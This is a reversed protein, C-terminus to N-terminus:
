AMWLYDDEEAMAQAELEAYHTGEIDLRDTNSAQVGPSENILAEREALSFETASAATKQLYAEAAGAIDSTATDGPKGGEMLHKAGASRQFAAVIEHAGMAQMSPNEPSLADDGMERLGEGDVLDVDGLSATHDEGDTSPLAPEPEEHFMAEAGESKSKVAHEVAAAGAAPAVAKLVKPAVARVLPVLAQWFAETSMVSGLRPYMTPSGIRGWNAPEGGALTGASAPSEEKNWPVTPGVPDMASPETMGSQDGFMDNVAALAMGLGPDGDEALALMALLPAQEPVMLSSRARISTGEDIDYKVVVKSPVWRPKTDDVTVDRGFMGRAQAEYQLALAHSCMRGAFRSMDDDAGWHYAGWKCGCSYVAVATRRGPVRQLGTEYVHHDGQVNAIVYGESAHTINVGGSKRIRVAKAQVDRWAATVHFRFDTDMAAVILLHNLSQITRPVPKYDHGGGPALFRRHEEEQSSGGSRNKGEWPQPHYDRMDHHEHPEGEPEPGMYDEDDAEQHLRDHHDHVDWGIHRRDQGHHNVLHDTLDEEDDDHPRIWTSAEIGPLSSLSSLYHGQPTGHFDFETTQPFRNAVGGKGKHDHDVKSHEIEGRGFEDSIGEGSTDANHEMHHEMVLDDGQGPDDLMSLQDNTYGHHSLLHSKLANREEPSPGLTLHGLSMLGFPDDPTRGPQPPAPPHIEEDAENHGYEDCYPCYAHSSIDHGSQGCHTCQKHSETTHGPAQCQQCYGGPHGIAWSVDHDASHHGPDNQENSAIDKAVQHSDWMDRWKEPPLNHINRDPAPDKYSKWWNVGGGSREGHNILAHPYKSHLHDMMASALGPVRSRSDDGNEVGHSGMMHVMVGAVKEPEPHGPLLYGKDDVLSHGIYGAPEGHVHGTLVHTGGLIGEDPEVTSSFGEPHEPYKKSPMAMHPLSSAMVQQRRDIDEIWEPDPEGETSRRDYSNPHSARVEDPATGHQDIETGNISRAFLKLQQPKGEPPEYNEDDESRALHHPEATPIFHHRHDIWDGVRKVDNLLPEGDHGIGVMKGKVLHGVQHPLDYDNRRGKEARQVRGNMEEHTDNGFDSNDWDLDCDPDCHEDHQHGRSMHPDPDMPEGHHDLDYVSVGEEKHGTVNNDSREDEPWHGFRVYVKDPHDEPLTSAIMGPLSSVVNFGNDTLRKNRDRKYDDDYATEPTAKMKDLLDYHGRRHLHNVANYSSIQYEGGGQHVWPVGRPDLHLNERTIGHKYTTLPPTTTSRDSSFPNHQRPQEGKHEMFMWAGHEAAPLASNHLPEWNTAYTADDQHAEEQADKFKDLHRAIDNPGPDQSAIRWDHYLADNYEGPDWGVGNQEADGSAVQASSPAPSSGGDGGDGGSDGGSGLEATHRITAPDPRDHLITGLEPYDDSALHETSAEVTTAATIQGPGYTGGGLGGELRIEYEEAGPFPGDSVAVVRGPGDITMVRQDPHYDWYVESQQAAVTQHLRGQRRMSM